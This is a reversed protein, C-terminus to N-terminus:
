IRGTDSRGFPVLAALRMIEPHTPDDAMGDYEGADWRRLFEKGSIGVLKRAQEDFLAQSDEGDLWRIEIDTAETLTAADQVKISVGM